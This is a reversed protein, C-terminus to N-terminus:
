YNKSYRHVMHREDNISEASKRIGRNEGMGRHAVPHLVVFPISLMSSKVLENKLVNCSM